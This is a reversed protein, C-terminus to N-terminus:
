PVARKPKRLGRDLQISSQQGSQLGREPIDGEFAVVVQQHAQRGLPGYDPMVTRTTRQINEEPTPPKNM